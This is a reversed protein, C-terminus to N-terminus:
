DKQYDTVLLSLVLGSLDINLHIKCGGSMM